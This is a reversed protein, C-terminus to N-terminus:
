YSFWLNRYFFHLGHVSWVNVMKNTRCKSQIADITCFSVNLYLLDGILYEKSCWKQWQNRRLTNGCKKMWPSCHMNLSDKKNVKGKKQYYYLKPHKEVTISKNSYMKDTFARCFDKISCFVHFQVTFVHFHVTFIYFQM